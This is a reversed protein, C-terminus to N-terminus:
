GAACRRGAGVVSGWRWHRGRSKAGAGRTTTTPVVLGRRGGGGGGGGAGAAAGDVGRTSALGEGPGGRAAGGAGRLAGLRDVPEAGVGGRRDAAGAQEGFRVATCVGPALRQGAALAAVALGAGRDPQARAPPRGPQDRARTRKERERLAGADPGGAGRAGPWQRPGARRVAGDGLDPRQARGGS